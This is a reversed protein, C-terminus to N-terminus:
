VISELEVGELLKLDTVYFSNNFSDTRLDYKDFWVLGSRVNLCKKDKFKFQNIVELFTFSDQSNKIM